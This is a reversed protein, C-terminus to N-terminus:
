LRGGGGRGGGVEVEEVGGVALGGRLGALRRGRRQLEEGRLGVVGAVDLGAADGGEPRALRLHGFHEALQLGAAEGHAHALERRLLVHPPRDALKEFFGLLTGSPVSSSCYAALM